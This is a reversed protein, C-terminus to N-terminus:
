KPANLVSIESFAQFNFFLIANRHSHEKKAVSTVHVLTTRVREVTAVIVTM